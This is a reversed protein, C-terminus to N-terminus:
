FPGQPKLAGPYSQSETIHNTSPIEAPEKTPTPTCPQDAQSNHNQWIISM